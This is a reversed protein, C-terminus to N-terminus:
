LDPEAASPAVCMWVSIRLPTYGPDMGRTGSHWDRLIPEWLSVLVYLEARGAIFVQVGGRGHTCPIMFALCSQLSRGCLVPHLDPILNLMANRTTM